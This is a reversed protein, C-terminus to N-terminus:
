TVAHMVPSISHFLGHVVKIRSPLNKDSRQFGFTILMGPLCATGDRARDSILLKMKPLMEFIQLCLCSISVRAATFDPTLGSVLIPARFSETGPLWLHFFLVYIVTKLLNM